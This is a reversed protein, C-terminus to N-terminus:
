EALLTELDKILVPLKDTIIRWTIADDLHSYGHAIQNRFGIIRSAEAIRNLLEPSRQRIQTLAEGIICFEFYVASRHLRDALSPPRPSSAVFTQVARASELMDSLYKKIEPQM